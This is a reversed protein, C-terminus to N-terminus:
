IESRKELYERTYPSVFDEGCAEVAEAEIGFLGHHKDYYLELEIPNTKVWKKAEEINNFAGQEMLEDVKNKFAIPFKEETLLVSISEYNEYNIKVGM